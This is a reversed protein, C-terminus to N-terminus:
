TTGAKLHALESELEAIRVTLKEATQQVTALSYYDPLHKSCNIDWAEIHFTISRNEGSIDAVEATGWFKVRAKMEYDMMFIFARPNEALNGFTIYQQNGPYDRFRLTKNDIVEIFGAEGGRHQIYPEGSKSATGFYLSVRTNVFQVLNDDLENRPQGMTEMKEMHKRSGLTKQIAQIAPSFAIKAFARGADANRRPTTM